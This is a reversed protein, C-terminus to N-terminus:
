IGGRRSASAAPIIRSHFILMYFRVYDKNLYQSIENAEMLLQNVRDNSAGAPPLSTPLLKGYSGISRQNHSTSEASRRGGAGLDMTM